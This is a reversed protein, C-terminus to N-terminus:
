GELDGELNHSLEVTKGQRSKFSTKAKSYLLLYMLSVTSYSESAVDKRSCSSVTSQQDGAHSMHYDTM